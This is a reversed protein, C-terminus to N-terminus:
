PLRSDNDCIEDNELKDDTMSDYEDILEVSRSVVHLCVCAVRLPCVTFCSFVCVTVCVTM